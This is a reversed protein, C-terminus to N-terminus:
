STKSGEIHVIAIRDAGVGMDRLRNFIEPLEGFEAIIRIEVKRADVALTRKLANTAPTAPAAPATEYKSKWTSLLSAAIRTLTSVRNVGYKRVIQAGAQKVDDPYILRDPNNQKKRLRRIQETFARLDKENKKKDPM